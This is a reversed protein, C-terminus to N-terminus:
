KKLGRIFSCLEANCKDKQVIVCQGKAVELYFDTDTEIVNLLKAYEYTGHNKESKTEFHDDFFLVTFRDGGAAKIMEYNKRVQRGSTFLTIIVCGIVVVIMFIGLMPRGNRLQFFAAYLIWVLAIATFIYGKKQDGQLMKGLRKIDNQTLTIDATYKPDMYFFRRAQGSDADIIASDRLLRLVANKRVPSFACSTVAIRLKAAARRSSGELLGKSPTHV